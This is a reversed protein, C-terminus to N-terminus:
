QIWQHLEPQSRNENQIAPLYGLTGAIYHCNSCSAEKENMFGMAM